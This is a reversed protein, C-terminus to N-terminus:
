VNSLVLVQGTKFTVTQLIQAFESAVEAMLPSHFSGNVKLPVSRRVKVNKLVQDVGKSTGSIVIQSNHNDNAIVVNPTQSIVQELHDRNFGIM